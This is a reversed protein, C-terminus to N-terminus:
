IEIGKFDDPLLEWMADKESIVSVPLALDIKVKADNYRIGNAYGKVYSVTHHYLLMTNDELTQFGHAIGKPIFIMQHNKASLEISMTTMFTSSEKRLDLVYDMVSGQVCRVLKEELYPSDQYHMGRFTGKKINFSQNMQKFHINPLISNFEEDCFFRGFWGREDQHVNPTIIYCGEIVTSVIKM